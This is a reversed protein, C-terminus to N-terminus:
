SVHINTIDALINVHCYQRKNNFHCYGALCYQFLIRTVVSLVITISTNLKYFVLYGTYQVCQLLYSLYSCGVFYFLCYITFSFNIYMIVLVLFEVSKLKCNATVIIKCM